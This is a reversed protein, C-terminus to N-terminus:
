EETKPTILTELKAYLDPKSGNNEIVVDADTANFSEWLGGAVQLGDRKIYVVLGGASKVADLEPNTHDSHCKQRLDTTVILPQQINLFQAELNLSVVRDVWRRVLVDRGLERQMKESLDILYHRPIHGLTLDFKDKLEPKDFLDFPQGSIAAALRKLPEAFSVKIANHKEILYSAAEDKGAGALGAFAILPM